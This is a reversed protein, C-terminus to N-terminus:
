KAKLCTWIMLHLSCTVRERHLLEDEDTPVGAFSLVPAEDNAFDSGALVEFGEFFDDLLEAWTVGHVGNALFHGEAEAGDSLFLGNKGLANHAEM